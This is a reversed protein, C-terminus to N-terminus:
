PHAGQTHNHYVTVPIRPAAGPASLYCGLRLAGGLVHGQAVHPAPHLVLDFDLVEDMYLRAHAVLKGHGPAGALHNQMESESLELLHIRIKGTCDPVEEGVVADEGLRCNASGLRCRQELPVAALRPVCEEVVVGELGVALALYQELGAATRAGLLLEVMGPLLHESSQLEPYGQGVLCFLLLDVDGDGQEVLRRPHAYHIESRHSHHALRNNIIDLFDRTARSDSRAEELLEETYLTPLPGLTSYLGPVTTELIYREAEGELDKCIDTLEGPPFALSLWPVVRLRRQLAAASCGEAKLALTLLRLAQALSYRGPNELLSAKIGGTQRGHAVAM